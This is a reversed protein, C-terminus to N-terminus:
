SKKTLEEPYVVETFTAFDPGRGPPLDHANRTALGGFHQRQGSLALRELSCRVDVNGRVGRRGKTVTEAPAALRLLTYRVPRENCM